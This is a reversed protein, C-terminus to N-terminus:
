MFSYGYHFSCWFFLNGLLFFLYQHWTISLGPLLFVVASSQIQSNPGKGSCHGHFPTTHPCPQCCFWITNIHWTCTLFFFCEKWLSNSFSLLQPLCLLKQLIHKRRLHLIDLYIQPRLCFFGTYLFLLQLNLFFLSYNIYCVKPFCFSIFDLGCTGPKAQLWLSLFSSLFCFLVRAPLDSPLYYIANIGMTEPCCPLSASLSNETEVAWFKERRWNSHSGPVLLTPPPVPLPLVLLPRCDSLLM